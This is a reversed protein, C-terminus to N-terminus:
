MRQMKFKSCGIQNQCGSGGVRWGRRGPFRNMLNTQAKLLRVEDGSLTNGQFPTAPDHDATRTHLRSVLEDFAARNRRLMGSADGYADNLLRQM